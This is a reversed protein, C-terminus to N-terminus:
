GSRTAPPVVIRGGLPKLASTAQNLAGGRQEFLVVDENLGNAPLITTGGAVLLPHASCVIRSVFWSDGQRPGQIACTLIASAGGTIVRDFKKVKLDWDRLLTSKREPYTEYGNDEQNQLLADAGAEEGDNTRDNTIPATLQNRM